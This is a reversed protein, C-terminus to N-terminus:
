HIDIGAVAADLDARGPIPLAGLAPREVRLALEQQERVGEFRQVANRHFEARMEEIMLAAASDLAEARLLVANQATMLDRRVARQAVSNDVADGGGFPRRHPRM